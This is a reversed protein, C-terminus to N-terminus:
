DLSKRYGKAPKAGIWINPPKEWGLCEMVRSLRVTHNQNLRERSIGLVNSLLFQSSVKLYGNGRELSGNTNPLSELNSLVAQWPDPPPRESTPAVVLAVDIAERSARLRAYEAQEQLIIEEFRLQKETTWGPLTKANEAARAELEAQQDTAMESM